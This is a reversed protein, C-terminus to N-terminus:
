RKGFNGVFIFFDDFDVKGDGDLDYAPDFGPDGSGKGFKGVFLFFDDFDVKGNGDFDGPCLVRLSGHVVNVAVTNGMPDSLVVDSLTLPVEGSPVGEALNFYFVAIPWTGPGVTSGGTDAVLLKVKGPEPENWSFIDMGETGEAAKADAINLATPDYNLTFQIGAIEAYSELSIHVPNGKSGPAGSAEEVRLTAALSLVTLMGDEIVPVIAEGFPDSLVVDSLNLSIDGSLADSAIDFSLIAIPGAGPAIIDGAMDAVLVKVQGPSLENWSFIDMQKTRDTAKVDSLSLVEADYSLTFQLGAVDMSNELIMQVANGTSGPVGAGDEVKLTATQAQLVCPLIFLLKLM